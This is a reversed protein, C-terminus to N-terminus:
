RKAGASRADIVQLTKEDNGISKNPLLTLSTIKETENNQGKQAIKQV